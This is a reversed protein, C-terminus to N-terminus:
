HAALKPNCYPKMYLFSNISLPSESSAFSGKKAERKARTRTNKQSVSLGDQAPIVYNAHLAMQM